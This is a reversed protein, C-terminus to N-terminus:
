KGAAPNNVVGVFLPVGADDSIVYIFPRDLNMEVKQIKDPEM